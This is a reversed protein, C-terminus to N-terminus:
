REVRMGHEVPEVARYCSCNMRDTKGNFIPVAIRLVWKAPM